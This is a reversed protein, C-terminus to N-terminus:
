RKVGEIVFKSKAAISPVTSSPSIQISDIKTISYRFEGGAKYTSESQVTYSADLLHYADGDSNTILIQGISGGNTSAYGQLTYPLTIYTATTSPSSGSITSGNFQTNSYKYYTGYEENFNLYMHGTNTNSSRVNFTIRIFKYGALGTISVKLVPDTVDVVGITEWTESGSAVPKELGM